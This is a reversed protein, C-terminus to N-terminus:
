SLQASIESGSMLEAIPELIELSIQHTERTGSMCCDKLVVVSYGLDYAAFATSLIVYHTVVGALIVTTVGARNLRRQLDTSAFPSLTCKKIVIETHRPSLEQVIRTGPKGDIFAGANQVYNEMASPKGQQLEPYGDEYVHMVHVLLPATKATRVDTLLAAARTRTQKYEELIPADQSVMKGGQECVDVQFDLFLLASRNIDM